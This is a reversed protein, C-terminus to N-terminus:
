DRTFPSIDVRSGDRLVKGDERRLDPSVSILIGGYRDGTEVTWISTGSQGSEVPTGVARGLAAGMEQAVVQPALPSRYCRIGPSTSCFGSRQRARQPAALHAAVTQWHQHGRDVLRARWYLFGPVGVAAVLAAALMVIFVPRVRTM